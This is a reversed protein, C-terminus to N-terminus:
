HSMKRRKGTVVLAGLSLVALLAAAVPAAGDGTDPNEEATLEADTKIEDIVAKADALAQNVARVDAAADIAAQGAAIAATVEAQEAERYDDLSVYSSLAAKAAERADALAAATAEVDLSLDANDIYFGRFEEAGQGTCYFYVRIQDLDGTKLQVSFKQFNDTLDTVELTHQEINNWVDDSNPDRFGVYLPTGESGVRLAWFSLTYVSNPEVAIDQYVGPSDQDTCLGNFSYCIKLSNNGSIKWDAVSEAWCVNVWNGTTVQTHDFGPADGAVLASEFESNALLNPQKDVKVLSAEDVYFARYDAAGQGTCYFYIRILDLDGTYFEYEYTAFETGIESQTVTYNYLNAWVDDGNPNRFGVNLAQKNENDVRAQFTLRYTTNKEVAVDQYVGPSNQDTCLGNFSYCIKLSSNGEAKIDTFPECWCVNVWSGTTVQTHDFGPADGAVLTSEFGGDALLNDEEGPDPTEEATLEADTKIEDIVAKADALAQNVAEVDAAADIAAQGAAIAATVEAQEAERYDDLSVYGSLAAKATEKANFLGADTLEADTKIEDIVAKADALAQNVARVDAAADIAAQGAAIAATVEAQEAERYDDLSVYSSLAAKAAERADALAAATAEVDLSLDANDIYFGRFEEAGQGTCYFYVRIQDLDGTKLQVSFKQFNDTLDTVELTHQEINNWVDDSNPDRFGVYLPTGESGVRLAWFSLTYVSNPEVAIDQYVGPSDQDTCLGNFSYCIKLSNNGSIKWDAVSEAWCVNVWNGTTVQTHDFGPADGAVLASEFESNALLNPQKDVKVLSAEDVYFARYDAAGQGTCYFYIRILDLDGTYFEYEYTAFETGIESQTVTYNYLNAWVDDGNPNRFGVNLAQKNENDVRAQFTLRYTTNKEVAVDQYVGPSNQDTCLGNFSYCIKLSSNGEAKIDTFPECWCVNVWSGTTVQTHDFGPADGAVLASEFGGDALLNDGEAYTVPVTALMATGLVFAMLLALRSRWKKAKM